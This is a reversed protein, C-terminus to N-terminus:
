FKNRMLTLEKLVYAIYMRFKYPLENRNSIKHKITHITSVTVKFPICLFKCFYLVHIDVELGVYIVLVIYFIYTSIYISMLKSGNEKKM